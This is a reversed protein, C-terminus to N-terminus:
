QRSCWVRCLSVLKDVDIPKAIYDNAGAQLCRERDDPMAKATLAIIPLDQLHRQARIERMAALGDKEPMMIDMLVLDVEREALRDVAEQGNRAIELTVGLPELVSSLAFINRVDDEALLVTRGDLVTDRRRAERLLRQQDTPLSAEVSHLFLTVEDLLREPSRAGKIIISKSYRRLRQEEERGLARGTYVIVPPFGVDDNGAMHELLDYGSGDPLSLDMVMCDFTVTSLQELAGALTGVAVIQLQDRGLLLELNHRLESDDEVILLRRVDRQSTQELQEIASVLRERTTPKIAFGIAGLERAVQSRDTASVVHVPIHRTDPNRKLRELVSLGSVDPLGIDLLIGNPRLEGALALAEEATGAVVCDFDLEHALAVLAEAFTADDEVALILRGPHQRRGRDDAVSPVTTTPAVPARAPVQMAPVAAAVPSAVPAAAIDAANSAPAGQLPLELIFCSGRGPESDVQISGGMREALDRSISLGLGTGGYRRRTSGDAQRFAEFIVQLQERAIGIGSDCVEFRIRGQGAARVHLSVKGHETFKVANALLNKLIQQLRQSDVVLQSPALADAEIQLALGKQRAMPEFTERLRQLVSDTVVVEDALEVHGAEIRSLDLIDNILALLDNNSSLIARAYKVQEETLTGDKNDALLKALILSSNLPTRLEHSMNALFESKYRSTAALENSNRVLQSQAVLLAQKQAELEHTREELQVNSQELEAQQEELHSQSQLLSRSQEELEENAVRLEEQQAQLEEGQRQSEELLVVLQARLLSARLAMGITEACRELLERDLDRQAGARARGLEVIGVVTGDSSIPALIRERVPLRGLSTQLELVADDSGELHRICEDRAVQGAVGEQLALSAPMGSPLALGGTLQLRGGELRYVAGVDAELQAGLSTAAAEAIQEPGLDGRLSMAVANEAEQLWLARMADRRAQIARSVILAIMLFACGGISRNVFSFASNSSAPAINFGIVLLICAVAAVIFPARASRQFVTVGVALFYALWVAYGLPVVLELAITAALLVASTMWIWRDRTTAGPRM